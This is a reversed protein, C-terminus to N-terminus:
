VLLIGPCGSRGVLVVTRGIVHIERAAPTGVFFLLRFLSEKLKIVQDQLDRRQKLFMLLHTDRRCRLVGVDDYILTLVHVIWLVSHYKCEPSIVLVQHQYAIKILREVPKSTGIRM